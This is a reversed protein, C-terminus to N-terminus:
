LPLLALGMLTQCVVIWTTSRVGYARSADVLPGALFKLVWPITVAATLATIEEVAVDRARLVPPLAWWIFGIPVGEALYLAAFLM